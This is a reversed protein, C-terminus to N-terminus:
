NETHLFASFLQAKGAENARRGYKRDRSKPYPPENATPMGTDPFWQRWFLFKLRHHLVTLLCERLAEIVALIKRGSRTQVVAFPERAPNDVYHVIRTLRDVIDRFMLAGCVSFPACKM